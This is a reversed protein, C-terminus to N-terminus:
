LNPLLKDCRSGPRSPFEALGCDSERNAELAATPAHRWRVVPRRGDQSSEGAATTTSAYRWGGNSGLRVVFAVARSRIDEEDQQNEM